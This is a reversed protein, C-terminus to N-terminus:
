NQIVEITQESFFDDIQPVKIKVRATYRIRLPPPTMTVSVGKIVFMAFIGQYSRTLKVEAACCVFWGILCFM